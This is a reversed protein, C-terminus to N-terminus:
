GFIEPDRREGALVVFIRARDVIRRTQDARYLEALGDRKMLGVDDIPHVHVAIGHLAIVGGAREQFRCRLLLLVFEFLAEAEIAIELEVIMSLGFVLSVDCIWRLSDDGKLATPTSTMTRSCPVGSHRLSKADASTAIAATIPM